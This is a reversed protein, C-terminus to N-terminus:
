GAMEVLLLLPRRINWEFWWPWPDMVDFLEEKWLLTKECFLLLDELFALVSAEGKCMRLFPLVALTLLAPFFSYVGRLPPLTSPLVVAQVRWSAKSGALHGNQDNSPVLETLANALNASNAQSITLLAVANARTGVSCGTAFITNCTGTSTMRGSIVLDISLFSSTEEPLGSTFAEAFAFLPRHLSSTVPITEAEETGTITTNTLSAVFAQIENKIVLLHTTIKQGSIIERMVWPRDHSISLGAVCQYTANKSSLPLNIKGFTTPHVHVAQVPSNKSSEPPTITDQPPWTYRRKALDEFGSKKTPTAVTAELDVELEWKVIKYNSTLLTHIEDRSTVVHYAPARIDTELQEVYETFASEDTLMEATDIDTRLISIPSQERVTEIAQRFAMGDEMVDPSSCPVWIDPKERQIVSLMDQALEVSRAPQSKLLLPLSIDCQIKIGLSVLTIRRKKWQLKDNFRHVTKFLTSIRTSSPAFNTGIVHHGSSKLSRLLSIASPTSGSVLITRHNPNSKPARRALLQHARGYASCLVALITTLPLCLWTLLTLYFRPDM